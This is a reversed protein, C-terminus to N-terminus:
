IGNKTFFAVLVPALVKSSVNHAQGEITRREAGPISKAIKDASVRMYPMTALSAGGDMVLTKARISGISEVPVSRDDGIVAIDYPITPALAEMGPWAPSAKMEQLMADPLGVFKMHFEVADSRRGEAVLKEVTARYQKWAEAAGGAEDYPAEYIALKEVKDGLAATAQLSLAAGSSIGHIYASGGAEDVVAEIDEIERDVAYPKKDGSDGRGRRDFTYVTFDSSLLQALEAHNSRTSLAGGVLVVAPGKGVADFAIKTGDKSTVTHTKDGDKGSGMYM